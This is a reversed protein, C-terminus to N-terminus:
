IEGRPPLYIAFGNALTVGGKGLMTIQGGEGNQQLDRWTLTCLKSVRVGWAYLLTLIARNRLDPELSIDGQM